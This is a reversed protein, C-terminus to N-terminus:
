SRVNRSRRVGGAFEVATGPYVETGYLRVHKTLKYTNVHLCCMIKVAKGLEVWVDCNELRAAPLSVVTHVSIPNASKRIQM